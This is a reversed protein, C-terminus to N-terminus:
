TSVDAAHVCMELLFQKSEFEKKEDSKDVLNMINDNGGTIEKAALLEKFQAHDKNHRSMDTALIIGVMRKRFHIFEERTFATM